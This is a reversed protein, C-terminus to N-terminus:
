KTLTNYYNIFGNILKKCETILSLIHELEEQSIYKQDFALYLQTEIEYISGRSIYFFQISDKTHNRGCGEAINSPISVACRRMQSALGYLEEKPFTKTLDFIHNVLRRSKLWVDLETYNKYTM